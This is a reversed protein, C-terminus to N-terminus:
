AMTYQLFTLLTAPSLSVLQYGLDNRMKWTRIGDGYCSRISPLEIRRCSERLQVGGFDRSPSPIRIPFSGGERHTNKM